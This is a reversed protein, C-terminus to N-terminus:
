RVAPMPASGRTPAAVINTPFSRYRAGHFSHRFPDRVEFHSFIPGMMARRSASM